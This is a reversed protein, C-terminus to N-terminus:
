EEAEGGDGATDARPQVGTRSGFMSVYLGDPLWRVARSAVALPAPFRIVPRGSELRDVIYRASEDPEQILPMPRKSSATMPTRIFGPAVETIRLSTKRLDLRLSELFVSLAAKTSSYAAHRPFGRAAALSTVGVLHGRDRAVMDPLVATLTAVAGLYNVRLIPEIAEFTMWKGSVEFGVGANAIVMDLGGIRRDLERIAAVAAETDGVDLTLAEAEGGKRAIEGVLAELRERRRAAVVVRAGRRALELALARGLGSSAGTILATGHGM